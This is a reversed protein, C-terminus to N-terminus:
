RWLSVSGNWVPLLDERDEKWVYPYHYIKRITEHQGEAGEESGELVDCPLDYDMREGEQMPLTMVGWHALFANIKQLVFAYVPSPEEYIPDLVKQMVWESLLKGIERAMEQRQEEVTLKARCNELIKKGRRNGMLDKARLIRVNLRSVKGRSEEDLDANQEAYAAIAKHLDEMDLVFLQLYREVDETGNINLYFAPASAERGIQFASLGGEGADGPAEAGPVDEAQTRGSLGSVFLGRDKFFRRIKELLSGCSAFSFAPLDAQGELRETEM